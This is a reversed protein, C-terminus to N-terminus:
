EGTSVAWDSRDHQRCSTAPFNTGFVASTLSIPIPTLDFYSQTGGFEVVPYGLASSSSSSPSTM